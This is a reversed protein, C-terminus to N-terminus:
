EEVLLDALGSSLTGGFVSFKVTIELWAVCHPAYHRGM